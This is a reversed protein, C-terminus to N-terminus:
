ELAWFVAATTTPIQWVSQFKFWALKASPEAAVMVAASGGEWLFAFLYTVAFPRAGPTSRRRWAFRAPASTLVLTALYPWPLAM